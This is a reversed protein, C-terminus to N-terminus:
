CKKPSHNPFVLIFNRITRSLTISASQKHSLWLATTTYLTIAMIDAWSQLFFFSTDSRHNIFRTSSFMIPLESYNLVSKSNKQILKISLSLHQGQNTFCYTVQINPTIHKTHKWESPLPTNDTDMTSQHTELSVAQRSWSLQHKFRSIYYNKQLQSHSLIIIMIYRWISYNLRSPQNIFVEGHHTSDWLQWAERCTPAKHCSHALWLPM